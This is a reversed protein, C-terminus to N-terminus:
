ATFQNYNKPVNSHSRIVWSQSTTRQLYQESKKIKFHDSIKGLKADLLENFENKVCSLAAASLICHNVWNTSFNEIFYCSRPVKVIGNTFIQESYKKPEKKMKTKEFSKNLDSSILFANYSRIHITFIGGVTGKTFLTPADFHWDPSKSTGHRINHGFNMQVSNFYKSYYNQNNRIINICNSSIHFVEDMFIRLEPFKKYDIGGKSGSIHKTLRIGSTKDSVQFCMGIQIKGLQKHKNYGNYNDENYLSVTGDDQYNYYGDLALEHHYVFSPRPSKVQKKLYPDFTDRKICHRIYNGYQICRIRFSEHIADNCTTLGIDDYGDVLSIHKRLINRYKKVHVDMYSTKPTELTSLYIPINEKPKSRIKEEYTSILKHDFNDFEKSKWNKIVTEKRIPITEISYECKFYGFQSKKVKKDLKARIRDPISTFWKYDQESLGFVVCEGADDQIYTKLHYNNKYQKWDSINKERIPYKCTVCILGKTFHWICGFLHCKKCLIVGTFKKGIVCDCYGCKSNKLYLKKRIDEHIYDYHKLSLEHKSMDFFGCNNVYKDYKFEYQYRKKPSSVKKISTGIIKKKKKPIFNTSYERKKPRM